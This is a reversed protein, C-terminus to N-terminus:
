QIIIWNDLTLDPKVSANSWRPPCLVLSVEKNNQAAWFSFTSNALIMYKCHSMLYMDLYSDGGKNWDVVVMNEEHFNEKVWEPDDSFFFFRPSGVKEKIYSISKTYYEENCIGCFVEPTDCTLYDGRRIHISVSNEAGMKKLVDKNAQSLNEVRYQFCFDSPVYKKNQWYGEYLFADEVPNEDNAIFPLKIHHPVLFKRGITFLVWGIKDTLWSTKPLDVVFRKHLELGNHMWLERSPYYGYISDGPFKDRLYRYFSYTFMQNGLGGRFEVIRIMHPKFILIPFLYVRGSQRQQCYDLHLVGRIRANEAMAVQYPHLCFSPATQPRVMGCGDTNSHLLIDHHTRGISLSGYSNPVDDIHLGMGSRYERCPINDLWLGRPHIHQADSLGRYLDSVM